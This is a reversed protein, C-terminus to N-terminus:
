SSSIPNCWFNRPREPPKSLKKKKKEKRSFNKKVKKEQRGLFIPFLLTHDLKLLGWWFSFRQPSIILLEVLNKM